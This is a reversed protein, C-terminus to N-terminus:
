EDSESVVEEEEKEIVKISKKSVYGEKVEGNEDIYTVKYYYPIDETIIAEINEKIEDIIKGAVEPIERVKSVTYAVAPKGITEQFYPLFAINWILILFHLVLFYKKKKGEAWDAVREQFKKPNEIQEQIVEYIEESSEFDEEPSMEEVDVNDSIERIVDALNMGVQNFNRTIEELRTSYNVVELAAQMSAGIQEFNRTAEIITPSIIQSMESIRNLTKIMEQNPLAVKQITAVTKTMSNMANLMAENPLAARQFAATMESMRRGAEVLSNYTAGSIVPAYMKNLRNQLEILDEFGSM